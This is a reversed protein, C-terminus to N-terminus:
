AGAQTSLRHSGAIDRDVEFVSVVLARMCDALGQSPRRGNDKETVFALDVMM